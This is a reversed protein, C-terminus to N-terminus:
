APSGEEQVDPHPGFRQSPFLYEFVIISVLVALLLASVFMASVFAGMVGAFILGIAGGVRPWSIYRAMRWTIYIQALLYLIPGLIVVALQAHTLHDNPHAIVFEDGVASVIIGAVLVVHAYTYADRALLGQDDAADLYQHAYEAGSSFYLWWLATTGIFALALAVIRDSNINLASLTSGTAVITEGLAIIIFLQFRENFHEPMVSWTNGTLRPRGPLWFLLLPAGYDVIVALIWLAIRWGGDAFAGGIWFVGAVAFWILVGRSREREITGRAAAVFTLFSHRGVQITVYAFAFLLAHSGFAQPVSVAMLLSLLMLGIMFVRILTSEPNVEDTFWTTYNWSWWVALLVIISQVAGMWTLHTALLHSVQTIAFVFVLDYFLELVNASQPLDQDTERRIESPDNVPRERGRYKSDNVPCTKFARGM